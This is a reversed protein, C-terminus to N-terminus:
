DRRRPGSALADSVWAHLLSHDDVHEAGNHLLTMTRGDIVLARSPSEGIVHDYYVDTTKLPDILVQHHLDYKEVFGACTKTTPPNGTASELLIQVVAVDDGYASAVVSLEPTVAICTPCWAYTLAVLIVPTGCLAHLSRTAGQCDQLSLDAVVMGAKTGQEGPGPCPPPAADLSPAVGDPAGTDPAMSDPVSADAAVPAGSWAVDSVAPSAGEPGPGCGAVALACAVSWRGRTRRANPPDERM